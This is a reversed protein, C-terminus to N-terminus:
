ITITANEPSICGWAMPIIAFVWRWDNRGILEEDLHSFFARLIVPVVLAISATQFRNHGSGLRGPEIPLPAGTRL